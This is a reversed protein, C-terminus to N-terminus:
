IELSKPPPSPEEIKPLPPALPKKLSPLDQQAKKMLKGEDEDDDNDIGRLRALSSKVATNFEVGKGANSVGVEPVKDVKAKEAPTPRAYTANEMKKFSMPVKKPPGADKKGPELMKLKSIVKDDLPKLLSANMKARYKKKEELIKAKEDAEIKAQIEEATLPIAPGGTPREPREGEKFILEDFRAGDFPDGLLMRSCYEANNQETRMIPYLGAFRAYDPKDRDFWVSKMMTDLCFGIRMLGLM